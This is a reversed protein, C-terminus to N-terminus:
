HHQCSFLCGAANSFPPLEPKEESPPPILLASHKFCNNSSVNRKKRMSHPSVVLLVHPDELCVAFHTQFMLTFHHNEMHHSTARGGACVQIFQYHCYRYCCSCCSTSIVVWEYHAHLIPRRTALRASHTSQPLLPSAVLSCCSSWASRLSSLAGCVGWAVGPAAQECPGTQRGRGEWWMGLGM